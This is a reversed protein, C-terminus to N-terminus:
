RSRQHLTRLAHDLEAMTNIGQLESHDEALFASVTGGKGAVIGVVDTLYYENQANANGVSALAEFLARRDVVYMGSNIETVAQQEATADRQEVIAAFLGDDSRIIRGYGTPDPMTCSLVSVTSHSERHRRVFDHLTSGTILPVDGSLILVDCDADGLEQRAQMVAHGTGLQERQWAFLTHPYHEAVFDRVLEGHHGVIVVVRSPDLAYAQGLVYSILPRDDLSAMVKPLDPNGMRKGKGAALVVISLPKM